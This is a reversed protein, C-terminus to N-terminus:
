STIQQNIQNFLNILGTLKQRYIIMQQRTEPLKVFRSPRSKHSNRLQSDLSNILRPVIFSRLSNLQPIKGSNPVNPIVCKVMWDKISKVQPDKSSVQWNGLTLNIFPTQLHPLWAGGNQNNSSKNAKLKVDIGMMIHRHPNLILLDVGRQGKGHEISQPALDISYHYPSLLPELSLAVM